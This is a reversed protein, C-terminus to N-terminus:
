AFFSYADQRITLIVLHILFSWQQRVPWLAVLSLSRGRSPVATFSISYIDFCENLLKSVLSATLSVKKFLVCDMLSKLDDVHTYMCVCNRPKFTIPFNGLTYFNISSKRQRWTAPFCYFPLGSTKVSLRPCMTNGTKCFALLTWTNSKRLVQGHKHLSSSRASASISEVQSLHGAM